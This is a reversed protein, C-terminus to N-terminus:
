NYVNIMIIRNYNANHKHTNLWDVTEATFTDIFNTNQQYSVHFLLLKFFIPKV